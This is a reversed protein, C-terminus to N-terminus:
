QAHIVAVDTALCVETLERYLGSFERLVHHTVDSGAHTSGGDRSAHMFSNDQATQENFGFATPAVMLVENTSQRKGQQMAKASNHKAASAVDPVACVRINERKLLRSPSCPLLNRDLAYQWTPQLRFAALHAYRRSTSDPCTSNCQQTTAADYTPCHRHQSNSKHTAAPIHKVPILLGHDVFSVTHPLGTDSWTNM